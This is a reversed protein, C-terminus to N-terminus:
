SVESEENNKSYIRSFFKFAQSTSIFTHCNYVQSFTIDPNGTKQAMLEGLWHYARTGPNWGYGGILNPLLSLYGFRADTHSFCLM